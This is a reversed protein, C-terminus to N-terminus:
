FTKIWNHKLSSFRSQQPFLIQWKKPTSFGHLEIRKNHIPDIPTYLYKEGIRKM